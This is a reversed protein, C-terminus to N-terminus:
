TVTSLLKLSILNSSSMSNMTCLKRRSTAVPPAFYGQWGTGRPPLPRSIATLVRPSSYVAIPNPVYRNLRQFAKRPQVLQYYNTWGRLHRNLESILEPLPKWGQQQRSTMQWIRDVEREMAKPSPELRWYHRSRDDRVPALGIQYGLFELREQKRRLNVIRTKERNLKLGLWAELKQEIFDRIRPGMHRAMVVFDDAYRILTAKAWQAPGNKSQFVRDFWHLYINALLPSLVGGQPTGSRNRRM